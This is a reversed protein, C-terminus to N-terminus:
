VYGVYSLWKGKRNTDGIYNLNSAAGIQFVATVPQGEAAVLSM